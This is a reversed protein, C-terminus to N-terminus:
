LCSCAYHRSHASGWAGPPGLHNRLASWSSSRSVQRGIQAARPRTTKASAVRDVIM